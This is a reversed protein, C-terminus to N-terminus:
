LVKCLGNQMQLVPAWPLKTSSTGRLMILQPEYWEDQSKTWELSTALPLEPAPILIRDMAQVHGRQYAAQKIHVEMAAKTSPIWEM